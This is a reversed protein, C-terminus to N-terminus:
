DIAAVIEIEVLLEPRALREVGILANSARENDGYFRNLEELVTLRTEDTMGVINVRMQCIDGPAGGVHALLASINELTQRMQAALDGAGVINFACDLAVSNTFLLRRSDSIAIQPFGLSTTDFVSPPNHRTIM